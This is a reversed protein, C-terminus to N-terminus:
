NGLSQQCAALQQNCEALSHRMNNHDYSPEAKEVGWTDNLFANAAILVGGAMLAAGAVTRVITNVVSSPLQGPVPRGNAAAWARQILLPQGKMLKYGASGIAFATLAVGSAQTAPHYLLGHRNGSEDTHAFLQTVKYFGYAAGEVTKAIASPIAGGIYGISCGLSECIRDTM